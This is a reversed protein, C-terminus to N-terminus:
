KSRVPVRLRSVDTIVVFPEIIEATLSECAPWRSSSRMARSYESKVRGPNQADAPCWARGEARVAPEAEFRDVHHHQLVKRM